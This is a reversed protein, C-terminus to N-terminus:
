RWLWLSHLVAKVSTCRSVNSVILTIMVASSLTFKRRRVHLVNNYVHALENNTKIVECFFPAIDRRVAATRMTNFRKLREPAKHALFYKFIRM